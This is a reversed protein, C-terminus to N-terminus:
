DQASQRKLSRRRLPSQSILTSVKWCSGARRDSHTGGALVEWLVTERKCREDKRKVRYTYQQAKTCINAIFPLYNAQSLKWSYIRFYYIQLRSDAWDASLSSRCLCSAPWTHEPWLRSSAPSMETGFLSWVTRAAWKEKRTLCNKSMRRLTSLLRWPLQSGGTFICVGPGWRGGSGSDRPHPRPIQM